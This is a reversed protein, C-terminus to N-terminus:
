DEPILDYVTNSVPMVWSCNDVDGGCKCGLVRGSRTCTNNSNFHPCTSDATGVTVSGVRTPIDQMDPRKEEMWMAMLLNTAAACLHDEDTQGDVYKALHRMASDVMTHMPLGREWNREPYHQKGTNPDPRIADEMHRSVRLLACMPLLDMRGQGGTDRVAGTQYENM